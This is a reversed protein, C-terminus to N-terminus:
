RGCCRKPGDRRCTPALLGPKGARTAPEWELPARPPRPRRPPHRKVPRPHPQNPTTFRSAAAPSARCATANHRERIHDLVALLLRPGTVGPESIEAAALGGTGGRPQVLHPGARHEATRHPPGTLSSTEDGRCDADGDPFITSQPLPHVPVASLRELFEQSVPSSRDTVAREDGPGAVGRPPGALPKKSKEALDCTIRSRDHNAGMATHGHVQQPRQSAILCQRRPQKSFTDRGARNRRKVILHDHIDSRHAM